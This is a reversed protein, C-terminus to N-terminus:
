RRTAMGKRRRRDKGDGRRSILHLELGVKAEVHIPATVHDVLIRGVGRGSWAERRSRADAAAEGGSRRDMRRAGKAGSSWGDTLEGHSKFVGTARRFSSRRTV